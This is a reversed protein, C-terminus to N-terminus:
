ADGQHEEQASGTEPPSTSTQGETTLTPTQEPTPKRPLVITEAQDSALAQASSADHPQSAAEGTQAANSSHNNGSQDVPQDSSAAKPDAQGDADEDSDAPNGIGRFHDSLGSEEEQ